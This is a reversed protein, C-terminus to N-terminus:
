RVTYVFVVNYLLRLGVFFFSTIWEASVEAQAWSSQNQGESGLFGYSFLDTMKLKHDNVVADLPFSRKLYFLSM